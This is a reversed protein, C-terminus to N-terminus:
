LPKLLYDVAGQKYGKFIFSTDHSAATLFIVPTLRTNELQKLRAVTEFGDMGKMQVDMLIVALDESAALSLALEGSTARIIRDCVSELVAELALLNDSNDDVILVTSSARTEPDGLPTQELGM